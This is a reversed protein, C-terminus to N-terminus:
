KVVLHRPLKKFINQRRWLFNAIFLTWCHILNFLCFPFFFNKQVKVSSGTIWTVCRPWKSKACPWMSSVNQYAFPTHYYKQLSYREVKNLREDCIQHLNLWIKRNCSSIKIPIHQIKSFYQFTLMCLSNKNSNIQLKNLHKLLNTKM